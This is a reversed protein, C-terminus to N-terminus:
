SRPQPANQSSTILREPTAAIRSWVNGSCFYRGLACAEVRLANPGKIAITAYYTNKSDRSYINGSWESAATQKMNILVSEGVTNSEPDLVYGCLAKGCREIRVAGKKAETQWDGLPTKATEGLPTKATEGLPTKATEDDAEKSVKSITPPMYPAAPRAVVPPPAVPPRAASPKAVPAVSLATAPSQPAATAQMACDASKILPPPAAVVPAAAPKAPPAVAPRIPAPQAAVVAPKEPVAATMIDGGDDWDRRRHEYIGPISVSVCSSSRCNNPAEIHVRHGGVSFSFSDGACAPSSIVILILLYCRRIM